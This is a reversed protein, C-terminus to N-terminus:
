GADRKRAFLELVDDRLVVLLAERKAPIPLADACVLPVRDLDLEVIRWRHRRGYQKMAGRIPKERGNARLPEDLRLTMVHVKGRVAHYGDLHSLPM